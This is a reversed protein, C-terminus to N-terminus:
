QEKTRRRSSALVAAERAPARVYSYVAGCVQAMMQVNRLLVWPRRALLMPGAVTLMEILFLTRM